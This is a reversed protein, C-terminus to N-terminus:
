LLLILIKHKLTRSLHLQSVNKKIEPIDLKIDHSIPMMDEVTIQDGSFKRLYRM